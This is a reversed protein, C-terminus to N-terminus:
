TQTPNFIIMDTYFAEWKSSGMDVLVKLSMSSINSGVMATSMLTDSWDVTNGSTHFPATM